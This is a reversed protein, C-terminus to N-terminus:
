ELYELRLKNIDEDNIKLADHIFNDINGFRKEIEDFAARIYEERAVLLNILTRALKLRLFVILMGLFAFANKIYHSRNYRMYDKVIVEKDVGLIILIIASGIGTRDKGQTCHWITAKDPNDILEKVMERYSNLAKDSSVLKRYIKQLHLRAGGDLKSIRKLVKMATKRTVAPNDDDSLPPLHYYNVGDIELDKSAYVESDSRLDIVTGLNIDDILYEVSKEKLKNLKSTRFLKGKKIKRGDITEIDGLDRIFSIKKIKRKLGM